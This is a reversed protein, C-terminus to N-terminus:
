STARTGHVYEGQKWRVQNAVSGRKQKGNLFLFCGLFGFWNKLSWGPTTQATDKCM